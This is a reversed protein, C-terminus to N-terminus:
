RRRNEDGRATVMEEQARKGHESLRLRLEQIRRDVDHRVRQNRPVSRYVQIANEVFSASVGHSPSDSSMRAAADSVFAEAEAVTM